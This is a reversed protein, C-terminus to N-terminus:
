LRTLIIINNNDLIGKQAYPTQITYGLEPDNRLFKISKKIKEPNSYGLINMKECLAEFNIQWEKEEGKQKGEKIITEILTNGRKVANAINEHIKIKCNELNTEPNGEIFAFNSGIFYVLKEMVEKNHPLNLEKLLVIASLGEKKPDKERKLNAKLLRKAKETQQKDIYITASNKNWTSTENKQEQVEPKADEDKTKEPEQPQRQSNEDKEQTIEPETQQTSKEIDPLQLRVQDMLAIARSKIGEKKNLVLNKEALTRIALSVNTQVTGTKKIIEQQAIGTPGSEIVLKLVKLQIANLKKAALSKEPETKATKEKPDCPKEIKEKLFLLENETVRRKEDTELLSKQLSENLEETKKLKTELFLIKEELEGKIFSTEKASANQEFFPKPQNGNRSLGFSILPERNPGEEQLKGEKKFGCEQAIAIMEKGSEAILWKIKYVDPALFAMSSAKKITEAWKEKLAADNLYVTMETLPKATLIIIGVPQFDMTAKYVKAEIIKKKLEGETINMHAFQWLKQIIGSVEASLLPTIVIPKNIDEYM